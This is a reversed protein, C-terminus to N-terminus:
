SLPACGALSFCLLSDWPLASMRSNTCWYFFIIHWQWRDGGEAEWPLICRSLGGWSSLQCSKSFPTLCLVLCFPAALVEHESSPLLFSRTSRPKLYPAHLSESVGLEQSRPCTLGRKPEWKGWKYHLVQRPAVNGLSPEPSVPSPLLHPTRVTLNLCPWKRNLAKQTYKHVSPRLFRAAVETQKFCCM